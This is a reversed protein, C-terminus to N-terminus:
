DHASHGRYEAGMQDVVGFERIRVITDEDCGATGVRPQQGLDIGREGRKEGRGHLGVRHAQWDNIRAVRSLTSARGLQKGGPAVVLVQISDAIIQGPYLSRVSELETYEQPEVPLVFEVATAAGFAEICACGVGIHLRCTGVHLRAHGEGIRHNWTIM